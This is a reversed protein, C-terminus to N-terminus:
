QSASSTGTGTEYQPNATVCTDANAGNEEYSDSPVSIAASASYSGAASYTSGNTWDTGITLVLTTGTGTEKLASSPLHLDAALEDAAAVEKSSYVLTTSAQTSTADSGATYVFGDQFVQEVVTQYRKTAGSANVVNVHM